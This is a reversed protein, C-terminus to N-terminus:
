RAIQFNWHCLDNIGTDGSGERNKLTPDLLLSTAVTLLCVHAPVAVIIIIITFDPM